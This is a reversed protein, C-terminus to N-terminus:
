RLFEWEANKAAYCTEGFADELPGVFRQIHLQIEWPGFFRTQLLLQQAEGPDAPPPPVPGHCRRCLCAPRAAHLLPPPPDWRGRPPDWSERPPLDAMREWPSPLPKFAIFAWHLAVCAKLARFSGFQSHIELLNM